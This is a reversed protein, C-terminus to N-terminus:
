AMRAQFNEAEPNQFMAALIWVRLLGGRSVNTLLGEAGYPGKGLNEFFTSVFLAGLAVRLIVLVHAPELAPLKSNSLGPTRAPRRRRVRHHM